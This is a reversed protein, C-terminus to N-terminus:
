RISWWCYPSEGKPTALEFGLAKYRPVMAELPDILRLQPKGLATAYAVAAGSVIVTVRGKLPHDPEPSGELYEVACYGTRTRGFALGCLVQESWVAVEFRAPDDRRADAVMDAWPWPYRRAAHGAWHDNFAAIATPGIETLRVPIPAFTEQILALARQFAAHRINRYRDEAARRSPPRM